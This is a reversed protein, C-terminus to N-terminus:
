YIFKNTKLIGLAKTLDNPAVLIIPGTCGMGAEAYIGQRWLLHQANEIDLVDIGAIERSVTKKSPAVVSTDATQKIKSMCLQTLGAKEAAIFEKQAVAALKGKAMAAAYEIAGAIVLAGSARSIINIIKSNGRGVGPGYGYGLTEYNGGSTYASFIKMLLNGTLSDTVMVQPTGALLDNGRMLAGGDARNSTAFNVRYGRAGLEGLIRQVQRSGDLNLIGVSPNEIGYAKAAAIGYIANLVMSEVRDVASTGTTCAIFMRAGKGPTVALGVTATGVPFHYHMTVAADLDSGELMREMAARGEEADGAAVRALATNIAAPGIVVVEADPLHRQALEAGALVEVPGHESDFLTIGIRVKPAIRGSALVDAAENLAEAVLQKITKM